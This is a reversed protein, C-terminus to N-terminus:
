HFSRPVTFTITFLASGANAAADGTCTSAAPGTSPASSTPAAVTGGTSPNPTPSVGVICTATTAPNTDLGKLTGVWVPVQTPPDAHATATVAVTSGTAVLSLTDITVGQPATAMIAPVITGWATSSAAAQAITLQQNYQYLSVEPQLHSLTQTATQNASQASSLTRQGLFGPVFFGAAIIVAAAVAAIPVARKLEPSVDASARARRKSTRTASHGPRILEGVEGLDAVATAAALGAQMAVNARNGDALM